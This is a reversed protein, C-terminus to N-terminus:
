LSIGIVFPVPFYVLAPFILSSDHTQLWRPKSTTEEKHKFYLGILISAHRHQKLSFLNWTESQPTELHSTFSPTSSRSSKRRTCFKSKPSDTQSCIARCCNVNRVQTFIHTHLEADHWSMNATKEYGVIIHPSHGKFVMYICTYVEKKCSMFM